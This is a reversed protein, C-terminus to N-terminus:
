PAQIFEVPTGDPDDVYFSRYGTGAIDVITTPRHEGTATVAAHKAAVDVV